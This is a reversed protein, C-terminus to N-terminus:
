CFKAINNKRIGVDPLFKMTMGIMTGLINPSNSGGWGGVSAMLIDSSASAM